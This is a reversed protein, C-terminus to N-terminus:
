SRMVKRSLDLRINSETDGANIWSRVEDIAKIDNMIARADSIYKAAAASQGYKRAQQAAALKEDREAVLRARYQAPSIPTM